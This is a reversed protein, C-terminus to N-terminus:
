GYRRVLGLTTIVLILVVLVGLGDMRGAHALESGREETGTAGDETTGTDEPPVAAEPGAGGNNTVTENGDPPTKVETPTTTEAVPPTPPSPDPDVSEEENRPDATEAHITFDEISAVDNDGKTNVFLGVRVSENPALVVGTERSDIRNSANTENYFHVADIEDTIWVRSYHDGTYTVTFITDLTTVTDDQVGKIETRPNDETLQVEIEEDENIVAFVGNPSDAPQISLDADPIEDTGVHTFPTAGTTIIM